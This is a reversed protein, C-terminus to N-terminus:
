LIRERTALSILEASSKCGSKLLIKKRHSRVTETSIFLKDAIMDSTMGRALHRIIELERVTFRESRFPFEQQHTTIFLRNQGFKALTLIMNERNGFPTINKIVTMYVSPWVKEGWQMSQNEMAVLVYKGRAHRLRLTYSFIYANREAHNLQKLQKRLAPFLKKNLVVKDQPHVREYLAHWGGALLEERGIGLVTSISQSCWAITHNNQTLLVATDSLSLINETLREAPFNAPLVETGKIGVANKIPLM